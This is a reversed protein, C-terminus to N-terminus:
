ASETAAHGRLVPRPDIFRPLAAARFVVVARTQLAPRPFGARDLLAALPRFASPGWSRPHRASWSRRRLDMGGTATSCLRTMVAEAAREIRRVASWGACARSAPSPLEEVVSAGLSTAERPAGTPGSGGSASTQSSRTFCRTLKGRFAGHANSRRRLTSAVGYGNRQRSGTRRRKV